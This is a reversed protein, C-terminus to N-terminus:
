ILIYALGSVPSVQGKHLYDRLIINNDQNTVWSRCAPNSGPSSDSGEISFALAVGTEAPKM